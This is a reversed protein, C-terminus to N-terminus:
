ISLDEHKYFHDMVTVFLGIINNLQIGIEKKDAANNVINLRKAGSNSM